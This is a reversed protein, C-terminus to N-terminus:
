ELRASFAARKIENKYVKKYLVDYFGTIMITTNKDGPVFYVELLINRDKDNTSGTIFYAKKGKKTLTGKKKIAIGLEKATEDLLKQQNISDFDARLVMPMIMARPNQSIFMNGQSKPFLKMDIDMSVKTSMVPMDKDAYITDNRQPNQQALLSVSMSLSLVVLLLRIVKRM